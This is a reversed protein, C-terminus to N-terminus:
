VEVKRSRIKIYKLYGVFFGIAQAIRFCVIGPLAGILVNRKAALSLDRVFINCVDRILIAGNKGHNLKLYANIESDLAIRRFLSHNSYNHYHVVSAKHIYSIRAGDKVHGRAFVVDEQAKIKEDFKNKDWIAKKFASNGNNFHDCLCGERMELNYKEDFFNYESCRALPDARHSGFTLQAFGKELPSILRSLWHEDAPVCHASLVVIIAGRANSVGCNLSFGFTFDKKEIKIIRCGYSQGIKATDDTSGSDVLIVEYKLNISQSYISKLSIPLYREENYARIIISIDVSQM